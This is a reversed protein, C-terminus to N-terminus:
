CDTLERLKEAIEERRDKLIRPVCGAKDEMYEIETDISDLLATLQEILTM